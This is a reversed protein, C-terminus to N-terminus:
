ELRAVVLHVVHHERAVADLAPAHTPRAERAGVRVEVHQAALAARARARQAARERAAGGGAVGVQVVVVRQAARLRQGEGVVLAALTRDPGLDAGGVHQEDAAAVLVQAAPRGGRSREVAHEVHVLAPEVSGDVVASAGDALVRAGRQLALPGEAVEAREHQVAGGPPEEAAGVARRRVREVGLAAGLALHARGLLADVGGRPAGARARGVVVGLGRM